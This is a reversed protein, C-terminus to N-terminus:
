RNTKSNQICLKCVRKWCHKSYCKIWTNQV